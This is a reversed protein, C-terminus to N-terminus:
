PSEFIARAEHSRWCRCTRSHIAAMSGVVFVGVGLIYQALGFGGSLDHRANSRWLAPILSGIVTLFGLFILIYCLPIQLFRRRRPLAVDFSSQPRSRSTTNDALGEAGSAYDSVQFSLPHTRTLSSTQTVTSNMVPLKRMSTSFSDQLSSASLTQSISESKPLILDQCKWRFLTLQVEFSMIHLYLEHKYRGVAKLRSSTEWTGLFITGSTRLLRTQYSEAERLSDLLISEIQVARQKLVDAEAYLVENVEIQSVQWFAIELSRIQRRSKVLLEGLKSSFTGNTTCDDIISNVLMAATIIDDIVLFFAGPIVPM